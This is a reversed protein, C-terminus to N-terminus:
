EKIKDNEKKTMKKKKKKVHKKVHFAYPDFGVRQEDV